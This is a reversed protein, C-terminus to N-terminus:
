NEKKAEADAARDGGGDGGGRTVVYVFYVYLGATIALSGLSAYTVVQTLSLQLDTFLKQKCWVLLMLDLSFMALTVFIHHLWQSSSLESAADDPCSKMAELM